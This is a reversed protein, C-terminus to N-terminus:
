LLKMKRMQEEVYEVGCVCVVFRRCFSCRRMYWERCPNLDAGANRRKCKMCQGRYDFWHWFDGTPTVDGKYKVRELSRLIEMYEPRITAALRSLRDEDDGALWPILRLVSQRLDLRSAVQLLIVFDDQGYKLRSGSVTYTRVFEQFFLRGKENLVIGDLDQFLDTHRPFVDTMLWRTVDQFKYNTAFNLVWNINGRHVYDPHPDAHPGKFRRGAPDTFWDYFHSFDEWDRAPLVLPVKETIGDGMNAMQQSLTLSQNVFHQRSVERRRQDEVFVVPTITDPRPGSSPSRNATM